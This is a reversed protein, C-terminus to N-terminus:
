KAVSAQDITERLMRIVAGPDAAGLIATGAVVVNAGQAAAEVVTNCDVGGDVQASRLHAHLLHTPQCRLHM